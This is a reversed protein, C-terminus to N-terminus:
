FLNSVWLKDSLYNNELNDLRSLQTGNLAFKLLIDHHKLSLIFTQKSMTVYGHYDYM